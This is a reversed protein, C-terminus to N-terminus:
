HIRRLKVIQFVLNGTRNMVNAIDELRTFYQALSEGSDLIVQFTDDYDCFRNPQTEPSAEFTYGVSYFNQDDRVFENKLEDTIADSFLERLIATKRARGVIDSTFFYDSCCEMEESTRVASNKIATVIRGSIRLGHDAERFSYDVVKSRNHSICIYYENEPFDTCGIREILDDIEDASLENILKPFVIINEKIEIGAGFCRNIDHQRLEGYEVKVPWDVMDVGTYGDLTFRHEGKAALKAIAYKMSWLDIMSGCGLSLISLPEISYGRENTLLKDRLVLEFMLAYEFAYATGYHCLYYQDTLANDYRIDAIARVNQYNPFIHTIDLHNEKAENYAAEFSDRCEKLKDHLRATLGDKEIQAEQKSFFYEYGKRDIKVTEPSNLAANLLEDIKEMIDDQESGDTKARVFGLGTHNSLLKDKEQDLKQQIEESRHYAGDVEIAALARDGSCVIFDIRMENPEGAISLLNIPVESLIEYKDAYRKELANKMCLAPASLGKFFTDGTHYQDRYYPIDDFISTIGSKHFGYEERCTLSACDHYVYELLKYLFLNDPEEEPANKKKIHITHNAYANQFEEPLWLSATIVCLENKARSVAVNLMRKQQSWPWRTEYSSDESSLFFISNCGKGQSRHITLVSFQSNDTNDDDQQDEELIINGLEARYEQKDLESQVLTLISRYPAIIGVSYTPDCRLKKIIRPMEEEFFIRFQRHNTHVSRGDKYNKHVEFYDGEYWVVRIALEDSPLMRATGTRTLPELRGGYVYKNNFGIISPHCRYHGTLMVCTNLFRGFIRSCVTLFSKESEEMYLPNVDAFERRLECSKNNNYVPALQEPDGILILHKACSMAIIGLMVGAQSCEDVIVYDYKIENGATPDHYLKKVSHITSTFFPVRETFDDAAYYTTYKGYTASTFCDRQDPREDFTNGRVSKSGLRIISNYLVALQPNTDKEETIKEHINNLAENNTSLVAATTGEPCLHRICSLINLIVETKGTGPPGQILTINNSLSYKVANLQSPNLYGSNISCRTIEEDSFTPGRLGDVRRLAEEDGFFARLLDSNLLLDESDFYSGLSLGVRSNEPLHEVFAEAQARYYTLLRNINEM